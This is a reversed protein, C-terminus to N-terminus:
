KIELTGIREFIVGPEEQGKVEQGEKELLWIGMVYVALFIIIKAVELGKQFFHAMKMKLRQVGPIYAEAEKPMVDCLSSYAEYIAFFDKPINQELSKTLETLKPSVQRELEESFLNRLLIAIRKNIVTMGPQEEYFIYWEYHFRVDEGETLIYEVSLMQDILFDPLQWLLVKELIHKGILIKQDLTLLNRSLLETLPIGQRKYFVVYLSGEKTFCGKYDEYVTNEKLTFFLPLLKKVHDEKVFHIMTYYDNGGGTHCQIIQYGQVMKEIYVVEFEESLAQIM